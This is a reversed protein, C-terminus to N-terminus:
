SQGAAKKASRLAILKSKLKNLQEIHEAIKAPDKTQEIQHALKVVANSLDRKDTFEDMARRERRRQRLDPPDTGYM